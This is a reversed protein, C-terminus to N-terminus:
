YSAVDGILIFVHVFVQQTVLRTMASNAQALRIKVEKVSTADRHKLIDAPINDVGPSKGDKLTRVAKEEEEKPIPSEGTERNEVDDESKLISAETKLKYNYLEM